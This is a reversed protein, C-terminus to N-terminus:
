KKRRRSQDGSRIRGITGGGEADRPIRGRRYRSTALSITYWTECQALNQEDMGEKVKVDISNLVLLSGGYIEEVASKDQESSSSM